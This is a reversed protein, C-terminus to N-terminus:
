LKRMWYWTAPFRWYSHDSTKEVKFSSAFMKEIEQPAYGVTRKRQQRPTFAKLIFIGDKKLVAALGEIYKQANERDLLHFCGLDYALDVKPLNLLELNGVNGQYFSTQERVGAKEADKRAKRIALPVFDVGITKYGAKAITLCDHGDGCGLDLITTEDKPLSKITEMIEKPTPDIKWNDAGLLFALSYIFKM